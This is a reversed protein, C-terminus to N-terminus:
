IALLWRIRRARTEFLPHSSREVEECDEASETSWPLSLDTVDVRDIRIGAGLYSPQPLPVGGRSLLERCRNAWAKVTLGSYIYQDATALFRRTRIPKAICSRAHASPYRASISVPM